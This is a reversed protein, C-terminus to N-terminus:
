AGQGAFPMTFGLSRLFGSNSMEASDVQTGPSASVTINGRVSAQQARQEVFNQSTAESTLKNQGAVGGSTGVIAAIKAQMEPTSFKAAAAEQINKIAKDTDEFYSKVMGFNFGHLFFADIAENTQKFAWGLATIAAAFALWLGAAPIGMVAIAGAYALAAVKSAIFAVALGGIAVALSPVNEFIWQIPRILQILASALLKVTPLLATGFTSSLTTANNKLLILKNGTTGLRVLYEDLVSNQFNTSKSVLDLSKNYKDMSGVLKKIGRAGEDGFKDTIFAARRLPDEIAAIKALYNSIADQPSKLYDKKFIKDEQAIETFKRMMIDMTTGAREQRIGLALLTSGMAAIQTTALGFMKGASGGRLTVELLQAANHAMNNSLHNIVDSTKSIQGIPENLVNALKAMSTGAQETSIDWAVSARAVDKIFAPLQQVKLGFQGGAAAINSLEIATLPIIKSLDQIDKGFAKFQQPSEFDVVKRVNSMASEFAVAQRIPLAVAFGAAGLSLLNNRLGEFSMSAKKAKLSSKDLHRNLKEIRKGAGAATRGAKDQARNLKAFTKSFRDLFEIKYGISLAM